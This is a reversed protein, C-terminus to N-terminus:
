RPFLMDTAPLNRAACDRVFLARYSDLVYDGPGRGLATAAGAIGADTGEIEVYTGVPTEDIAIVVDGYTFEERFKEYQFWPMFGLHRLIAAIVTADGVSTEWEERVKLTPHDTPNKFTVFQRDGDRRLRLVAGRPSLTPATTDYLTDSQLRRPRLRVAGLATVATRAVDASAYPLKIERELPVTM